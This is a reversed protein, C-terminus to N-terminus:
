RSVFRRWLSLFVVAGVGFTADGARISDRQVLILASKGDPVHRHRVIKGLPQAGDPRGLALLEFRGISIFSSTSLLRASRRELKM